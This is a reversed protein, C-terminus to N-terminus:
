NAREMFYTRLDKILDEILSKEVHEMAFIHNYKKIKTRKGFSLDFEEGSLSYIKVINEEFIKDEFGRFYVALSLPARGIRLGDDDLYHGAKLEAELDKLRKYAYAAMTQTKKAKKIEGDCSTGIIYHGLILASLGNRSGALTSDPSGIYAPDSPPELQYKRKTMYIGCPWPAGIWKHGSMSISHVFGLGFGFRPAQRIFPMYAAGLAGDVHFWFGNRSDVRTTENGEEDKYKYRVRREYLKHKKFIPVLKNGAAEVDDYAGKFATGYNFVVIIPYGREAFFEVLYELKEVDIAGTGDLSGVSPVGTTPWTGCGKRECGERKSGNRECEECWTLQCEGLHKKNGVDFFTNLGLVRAIKVVSYHTDQSYFLLPRRVAKKRDKGGEESPEDDTPNLLPMGCLYDRANWLGYLNAETSGMSCVYGWCTEIDEKYQPSNKYQNYRPHEKKDEEAKFHPTGGWLEAYYNLVEREVEKSNIRFSGDEFPDGLNNIQCDLYAALVNQYHLGQNAQFGLFKAKQGELADDFKDLAKQIREQIETRAPSIGQTGGRPLYEALRAVKRATEEGALDAILALALDIGSSVGSATWIKGDRTLRQKVVEVEPFKRLRELYSAHTTAQKGDLLGAAQLIFAGTCVSLIGKCSASRQKVFASVKGLTEDDRVGKGGPVLLYDMTFRDQFSYDAVVKLGNSCEVVGGKESILCLEADGDFFTDWIGFMEWPGVFDLEEVNTFVLFGIKM